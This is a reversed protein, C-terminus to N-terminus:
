NRGRVSKVKRKWRIAATHAASSTFTKMSAAEAARVTRMVTEMLNQANKVLM